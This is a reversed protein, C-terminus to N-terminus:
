VTGFSLANGQTLLPPTVPLDDIRRGIPLCGILRPFNAAGGGGSDIMENVDCVEGERLFAWWEIVNRMTARVRGISGQM